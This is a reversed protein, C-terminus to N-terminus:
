PRVFALLEERVVLGDAHTERRELQLGAAETVRLLQPRYHSWRAAGLHTDTLLPGALGHARSEQSLVVVLRRRAAAAAMALLHDPERLHELVHRVVVADALAPRPPVETSAAFGSMAEVANCLLFASPGDEVLLRLTQPPTVTSALPLGTRTAALQLLEASSDVGVYRIGGADGPGRGVAAFADVLVGPGCGLDVVSECIALLDVCRRRSPAHANGICALFSGLQVPDRAIAQFSTVPDFPDRQGTTM